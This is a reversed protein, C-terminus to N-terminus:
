NSDEQELLTLNLECGQNLEDLIYDYLLLIKEKYPTADESLNKNLKDLKNEQIKDREIERRRDAGM